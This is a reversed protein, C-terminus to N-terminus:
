TKKIGSSNKVFNFLYRSILNHHFSIPLDVSYEGNSNLVLSGDRRQMAGVRMSEQVNKQHWVGKSLNSQIPNM